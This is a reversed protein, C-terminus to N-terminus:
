PGEKCMTVSATYEDPIPVRLRTANGLNLADLGKGKVLVRVPEGVCGAGLSYDIPYTDHDLNVPNLSNNVALDVEAQATSDETRYLCAIRAGHRAATTVQQVRLFLFGFAMTALTILLLIILVIAAEVVSTGRYRVNKRNTNKANKM